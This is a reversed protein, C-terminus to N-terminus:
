PSEPYAGLGVVALVDGWTEGPMIVRQVHGRSTTVRVGAVGEQFFEVTAGIRKAEREAWAKVRDDPLWGAPVDGTDLSTNRMAGGSHEVSNMEIVLAEGQRWSGRADDTEWRCIYGKQERYVRVRLGVPLVLSAGPLVMRWEVDHGGWAKCVYQRIGGAQDHISEFIRGTAVLQPKM